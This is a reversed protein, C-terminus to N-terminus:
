FDGPSGPSVRGADDRRGLVREIEEILFTESEPPWFTWTTYGYNGEAFAENLAALFGALGPNM